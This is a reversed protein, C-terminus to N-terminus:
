LNLDVRNLLVQQEIKLPCKDLGSLASVQLDACYIKSFSVSGFNRSPTILFWRWYHFERQLDSEKEVDAYSSDGVVETSRVQSEDDPRNLFEFFDNSSTIGYYPLSVNFLIIIGNGLSPSHSTIVVM